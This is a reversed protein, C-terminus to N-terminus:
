GPAIVASPQREQRRRRSAACLLRIGWAVADGAAHERYAPRACWSAARGSTVVYDTHPGRFWVAEIAAAFPGGVVTWEPRLLLDRRQTGSPTAGRGLATTSRDGIEIALSGDDLAAVDATVVSAIGTLRAATIDVPEAYM